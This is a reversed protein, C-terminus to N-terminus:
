VTVENSIEDLMSADLEGDEKEKGSGGKLDM